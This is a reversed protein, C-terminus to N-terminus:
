RKIISLEETNNGVSTWAVLLRLSGRNRYSACKKKYLLVVFDSFGDHHALTPLEALWVLTNVTRVLAEQSCPKSMGSFIGRHHHISKSARFSNQNCLYYNYSYQFILLHKPTFCGSIQKLGVAPFAYSAFM